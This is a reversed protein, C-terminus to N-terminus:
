RARETLENSLKELVEWDSEDLKALAEVLRKRFTGGEKILDAAFDTIVQDRSLHIFMEGEGTRLWAENVNFERCILAIVADIPENRGIEYNAISNRKMCLREAFKEQTLGLEKRLARLRDKVEEGGQLNM